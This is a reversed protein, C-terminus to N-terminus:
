GVGVLGAHACGSRKSPGHGREVGKEELFFDMSFCGSMCCWSAFSTWM